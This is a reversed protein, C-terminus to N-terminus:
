DTSDVILIRKGLFSIGEAELKERQLHASSGRLSIEGRLNVVRHWPLKTDKPLSRLLAGVARAAGAYGARKALGGYSVVSGAPVQSLTNLVARKFESAPEQSVAAKHSDNM